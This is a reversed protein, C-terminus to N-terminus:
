FEEFGQKVLEKLNYDRPNEGIELLFNKARQIKYPSRIVPGAKSGFAFDKDKRQTRSKKINTM